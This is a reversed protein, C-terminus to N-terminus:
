EEEVVVLTRKKAGIWKNLNSLEHVLQAHRQRMAEHHGGTKEIDVFAGAGRGGATCSIHHMHRYKNAFNRAHRLDNVSNVRMTRQESRLFTQVEPHTPMSANPIAWTLSPGTATKSKLHAIRKAVVDRLLAIHRPKTSEVHPAVKRTLANILQACNDSSVDLSELFEKLQDPQPAHQLAVLVVARVHKVGGQRWVVGLLSMAVLLADLAVEGHRVFMSVAIHMASAAEGLKVANDIAPKLVPAIRSWGFTEALVRATAETVTSVDPRSWMWGASRDSAKHTALWKLARVVVDFKDQKAAFVALSNAVTGSMKAECSAIIHATGVEKDQWEPADNLVSMAAEIKKNGDRGNNFIHRFVGNAPIMLLLCRGYTQTTTAGENGTFGTSEQAVVLKFTLLKKKKKKFFFM